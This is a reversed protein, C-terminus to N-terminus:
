QSYDMNANYLTGNQNGTLIQDGVNGMGTYHLEDGYWKDEYLGKTHDSIIVFCGYTNSKRMGGMNGIKFEKRMEDNSVVAGVAFSPKHVM